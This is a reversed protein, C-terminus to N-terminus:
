RYARHHLVCVPCPEFQLDKIEDFRVRASMAPDTDNGREQLFVLCRWDSHYFHGSYTVYVFEDDQLREILLWSFTALLIVIAILKPIATSNM